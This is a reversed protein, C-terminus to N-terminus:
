IGEDVYKTLLDKLRRIEDEELMESGELKIIIEEMDEISNDKSLFDYEIKEFYSSLKREDFKIDFRIVERIDKKAFDDEDESSNDSYFLSKALVLRFKNQLLHNFTLDIDEGFFKINEDLTQQLVGPSNDFISFTDKDIKFFLYFLCLFSVGM